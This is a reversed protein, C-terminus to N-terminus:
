DFTKEKESMVFKDMTFAASTQEPKTIFITNKGKIFNGIGVTEWGWFNNETIYNASRHNYPIKEGNILFNVSRSGDRHKADDSVRIYINAPGSYKSEFEYVAMADKDALYLEGPGRGTPAIFSYRGANLLEGEEGEIWLEFHPRVFFNYIKNLISAIGIKINESLGKGEIKINGKDYEDKPNAGDFIKQITCADSIVLYDYDTQRTSYVKNNAASYFFEEDDIIGKIIKNNGILQAFGPINTSDYEVNKLKSRDYSCGLNAPIDDLVPTQYDSEMNDQLVSVPMVQYIKWGDAKILIASMRKSYELNEAGTIKTNLSYEAYAFSKDEAVSMDTLGYSETDYLKFLEIVYAKRDDIATYEYNDLYLTSFYEEIDEAAYAAYYKEITEQPASYVFSAVLIMILAILLLNKM